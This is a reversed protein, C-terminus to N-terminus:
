AFKPVKKSDTTMKPFFVKKHSIISQKCYFLQIKTGKNILHAVFTHM